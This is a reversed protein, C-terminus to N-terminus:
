AGHQLNSIAGADLVRSYGASRLIAAASRSRAGSACCLVIEEETAGVEQIRARLANVPLNTAGKVHGSRFESATRVDILRAGRALAERAAAIRAPDPRSRWARWLLLAAFAAVIFTTSM